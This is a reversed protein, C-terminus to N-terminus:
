SVSVFEFDENQLAGFNRNSLTGKDHTITYQAAM